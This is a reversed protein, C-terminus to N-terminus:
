CVINISAPKLKLIIDKEAITPEGDFHIPLSGEFSIKIEKGKVTKVFNSTHIKKGFLKTALFPFHYLKFPKLITTNLYGDHISAEPAIYVDNGWQGANAITILFAKEKFIQNNISVSYENAQYGFYAKISTTVYSIFGRTSNKAFLNAILADFGIGATCFYPIDNITASDITITNGKEIQKLAENLDMSVGVTRALGNGSGLPLIGLSVSTNLISSAVKNVTGDGGCAVACTYNGSQIQKKISEFDNKNEWVIIDYPISKNFHTEIFLQINIKKKVGANPNIIFAIKRETAM